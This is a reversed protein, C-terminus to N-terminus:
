GPVGGPPLRPDRGAAGAPRRGPKARRSAAAQLARRVSRDRGGHRAAGGREALEAGRKVYRRGDAYVLTVRDDDLVTADGPPLHARAADILLPDLEVYTVHTIPHKLIERLDGAVGGGILLVGRPDPHALLPFHAVEEPFTGQTEFALLGNEFFIRQGDRAQITLRGYPSDAAFALDTWQWRLTAEHLTRGLLFAGLLLPLLAFLLVLRSFVSARFRGSLTLGAALVLNVSVVLLATQFPDLWRIIAFSFLAGGVVAGVSEWAYAQGGTGGGEITLRAGLTFLFGVLLCLPAPIFIVAAVMPGFEVFAGPTVGLLTRVDRVLAIELLLLPGALILGVGFAKSGMALRATLRALGWAGVAVWALWAMLVLGFLLENGYFTAVLERMLVIQAIISTFGVAALPLRM